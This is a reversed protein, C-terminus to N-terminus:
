HPCCSTSSSLFPATLIESEIEISTWAEPTSPYLSPKESVSAVSESENVSQFSISTWTWFRFALPPSLLAWLLTQQEHMLTSVSLCTQCTSILVVRPGFTGTWILTLILTLILIWSRSELSDAFLSAFGILTKKKWNPGTVPSTSPSSISIWIMPDAASPQRPQLRLLGADVPVQQSLLALQLPLTLAAIWVLALLVLVLLGGEELQQTSPGLGLHLHGELFRVLGPLLAVPWLRWLAVLLVWLLSQLLASPQPVSQDLQGESRASFVFPASRRAGLPSCVGVRCAGVM